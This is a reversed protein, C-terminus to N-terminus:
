ERKQVSLIGFHRQYYYRQPLTFRQVPVFTLTSVLALAAFFLSFAVLVLEDVDQVAQAFCHDICSQQHAMCDSTECDAASVHDMAMMGDPVTFSSLSFLAGVLLLSLLVLSTVTKYMSRM